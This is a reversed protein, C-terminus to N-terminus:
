DLFADDGVRIVGGEVIEGFVGARWQPKLAARLGRQAEEMRECPTTEGLIRIVVSGIRLLRGRTKELAIGRLMVNARRRSPDVDVGVLSTAERWAQEDIITVQRRGRQNANGALGRGAVAEAEEVPDM